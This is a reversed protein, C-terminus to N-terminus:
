VKFKAEGVGINTEVRVIVGGSEMAERISGDEDPVEITGTGKGKLKKSGDVLKPKKIDAVEVKSPLALVRLRLLMADNKSTNEIRVKLKGDGARADVVKIPGKKRMLFLAVLVVLVAALGIYIYRNEEGGTVGPGPAASVGAMEPTVELSKVETRAYLQGNSYLLMRFSYTGPKWGDTPVYNYKFETDNLPLLPIKSVSVNELPKGNYAVSLVIEANKLPRFLNRVTSVVYTYGIRGEANTAPAADFALFYVTRVVLKVGKEENPGVEFETSNLFNGALYAEVRYKGPAVVAELRGTDTREIPYKSPLSLLVTDVPVVNGTVDVVVVRVTSGEGTVVVTAKLAGSPTAISENGVQKIEEGGVVVTYNGPPCNPAAKLTVYVVKREGPELTFENESFEVRLLDTQPDVQYVMRVHITENSPNSIVVKSGSVTGGIPVQYTHAYFDGSVGIYAAVMSATLLVLLLPLLGLVVRKM